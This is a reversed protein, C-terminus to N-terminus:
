IMDVKLNSTAKSVSSEKFGENSREVICGRNGAKQVISKMGGSPLTM